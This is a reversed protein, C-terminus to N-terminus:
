GAVITTEVPSCQVQRPHSKGFPHPVDAKKAAVDRLPGPFELTYKGPVKFDYAESLNVKADVSAGPALKVYDSATPPGRKRMEGRYDVETGDRTVRLFSNQLGELPTHWNLVWVTESTSNTLRFSLEVPEGAKLRSPVSLACTLPEAM